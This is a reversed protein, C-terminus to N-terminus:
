REEWGRVGWQAISLPTRVLIALDSRWSLRALYALDLRTKHRTSELSRCYGLHLQAWGTLGPRVQHRQEYAPIRRRFIAVFLPREPRPGVLAMEGRLVNWLQPLEDVHWARLLHGGPVVRRDRWEAFRACGEGEADRRMTRLKWMRFPRGAEGVRWQRLLVPGSSMCRVWGAALALVPLAILLGVCALFADLRAKGRRLYWSTPLVLPAVHARPARALGAPHHSLVSAHSM